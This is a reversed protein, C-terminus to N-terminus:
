KFEPIIYEYAWRSLNLLSILFKRMYAHPRGDLADRRHIRTPSANRPLKSLGQYDKQAKLKERLAAYRMVTEEIKKEKAIKSKKAM